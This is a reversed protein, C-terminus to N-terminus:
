WETIWVRKTDTHTCNVFIQGGGSSTYIWGNVDYLSAVFGRDNVVGRTIVRNFDAHHAGLKSTPVSELYTPIMCTLDALSGNPGAYPTLGENAGIYVSLASRFGNLSGKTSGERSKRLMEAFKPVAVAALIGIIAVVIMLEILTFGRETRKHM